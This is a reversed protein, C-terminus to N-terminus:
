ETMSSIGARKQRLHTRPTRLIAVLEALSEFRACRRGGPAEVRGVLQFSRGRRRRYIRVVYVEPLMM